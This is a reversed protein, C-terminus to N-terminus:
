QMESEGTKGTPLTVCAVTGEGPVSCFELKGRHLQVIRECIALGLGAGGAGRSRSKDVRYFAEKIRSLQEKTMGIGQDTVELMLFDGRGEARIKVATGSPSAKLGNDILNTLLTILLDPNGAIEERHEEFTLAIGKEAAKVQMIESVRSFLEGVPCDETEMERLAAMDLLQYAMNQLRRCESLIFETCEFKEEETLSARQIYEAYGYVATLPTRLEHAFNDIFRQKEDATDQLLKIHSEVQGAMRNFNDAMVAIEDKGRVRLRAHYDGGAIVRSAVSIERLPRFLIDLFQILFLALLLTVAASVFFLTNKMQRWSQLAEGLDASYFLGYDQYPAPFRGYICLKPVPTKEIFVIRDSAAERSLIEGPTKAPSIDGGCCIWEEGCAVALENGRNRSYRLYTGALSEMSARVDGGRKEVAQMDGLLTSSIMYHESLVKERETEVCERLTILSVILMSSNIFIIFLLLTVFFTKKKM